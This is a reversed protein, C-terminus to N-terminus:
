KKTKKIKQSKGIRYKNKAKDRFVLEPLKLRAYGLKKELDQLVVYKGAKYEEQSKKINAMIEPSNLIEHDEMLSDFEEASMLVVTPKGNETFTYYRGPNQADKAIEFIRNRAESISIINKIKINM